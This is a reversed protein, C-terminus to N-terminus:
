PRNKWEDRIQRQWAAPDTRLKLWGLRSRVQKWNRRTAPQDLIVLLAHGNEPIKAPESPVVRGKRINVAITAYM